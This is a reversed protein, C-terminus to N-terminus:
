SWRKTPVGLFGIEYGGNTHLFYENPQFYKKMLYAAIICLSRNQGKKSFVLVGESMDLAEEIFNFTENLVNGKQDFITQIM